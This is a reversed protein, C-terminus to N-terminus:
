FTVETQMNNISNHRCRSGDRETRGRRLSGVSTEWKSSFQTTSWRLLELCFVSTGNIISFTAHAFLLLIPRVSCRFNIDLADSAPDEREYNAGDM